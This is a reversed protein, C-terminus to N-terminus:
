GPEGNLYSQLLHGSADYDASINWRWVYYRCLNIDYVYKEVGAQTPHIVLTGKGDDVFSKRLGARASGPPFQSELFHRMDDLDVFAEYQFSKPPDASSAPSNAALLLM